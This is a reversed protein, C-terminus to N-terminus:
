THTHAGKVNRQAAPTRGLPTLPVLSCLRSFYRIFQISQAEAQEARAANKEDFATKLSPVHYLTM